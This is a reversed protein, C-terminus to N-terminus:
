DPVTLVGNETGFPNAVRKGGDPSDRWEGDVRLRYEYEGAELELTTGWEGDMGRTLPIGKESWGTFEGTVAVERAEIGRVKFSVRKKRRPRPKREPNMVSEKPRPAEERTLALGM